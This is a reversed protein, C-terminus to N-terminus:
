QASLETDKLSKQPMELISSNRNWPFKAFEPMNEDDISLTDKLNIVKEAKKDSSQKALVPDM